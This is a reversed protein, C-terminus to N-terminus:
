NLHKSQILSHVLVRTEQDLSLIDDLSQVRTTSLRELALENLKAIQTFSIQEDLFAAVTEENAANLVTTAGQGIKSADLALRLNPFRAFDPACFTFSALQTFDLPEVGSEIRNPYALTHAIPTRMDPQGMQALVSGDNYSVM